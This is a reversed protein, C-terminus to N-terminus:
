IAPYLHLAWVAMWSAFLLTSATKGFSHGLKLGILTSICTLPILLSTLILPAAGFAFYIFPSLILLWSTILLFHYLMLKDLRVGRPSLTALM